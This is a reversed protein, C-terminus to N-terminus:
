FTDNKERPAEIGIVFVEYQFSSSFILVAFTVEQLLLDVFM